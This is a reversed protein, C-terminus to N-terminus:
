SPLHLTVILSSHLIRFHICNAVFFYLIKNISSLLHQKFAIHGAGSLLVNVNKNSNARNISMLITVSLGQLRIM